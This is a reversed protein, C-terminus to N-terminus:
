REEVHEQWSGLLFHVMDISGEINSIVFIGLAFFMVGNQGHLLAISACHLWTDIWKDVNEMYQALPTFDKSYKGFNHKLCRFLVWTLSVM